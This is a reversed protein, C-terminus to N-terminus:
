TRGANWNASALQQAAVTANPRYNLEAVDQCKCSPSALIGVDLCAMTEPKRLRCGRNSGQRCRHRAALQCAAVIM